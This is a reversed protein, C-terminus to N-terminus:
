NSVERSTYTTTGDRKVSVNWFVPLYRDTDFLWFRYNVGEPTEHMSPPEFVGPPLQDPDMLIHADASALVIGARLAKMRLFLRAFTTIDLPPANADRMLINMVRDFHTPQGSSLIENANVLYTLEGARGTVQPMVSFAFYGAIDVEPLRAISAERLWAIPQIHLRLRQEAQKATLESCHNNM